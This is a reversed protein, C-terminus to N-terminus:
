CTLIRIPDFINEHLKTGKCRLDLTDSVSIWHFVPWEHMIVMGVTPSIFKRTYTNKAGNMLGANQIEVFCTYCYTHCWDTLVDKSDSSATDSTLAFPVYCGSITWMSFKWRRTALQVWRLNSVQRPLTKMSNIFWRQNSKFDTRAVTIM